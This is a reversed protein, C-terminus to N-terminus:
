SPPSPLMQDLEPDVLRAAGVLGVLANVLLDRLAEREVSRRELWDVASSVVLWIWGRVAVYLIPPPDANGAIGRVIREAQRDQGEEIIARVDPDSAGVARHTALAGHAHKELYDLWAEVSARLRELPPLEPDPESFAYAEAVARQVVAVFFDRKTPFYHYLLGRSVGAREAIEEIWVEDYPRSSFLELGLELLQARRADVDLRTRTSAAVEGLRSNSV